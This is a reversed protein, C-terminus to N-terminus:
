ASLRICFISKAIRVTGGCVLSIQDLNYKHLLLLVEEANFLFMRCIFCMRFFISLIFFLDSHISRCVGTDNYFYAVCLDKRTICLSTFRIDFM